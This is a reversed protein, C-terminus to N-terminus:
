MGGGGRVQISVFGATPGGTGMKVLGGGGSQPNLSKNMPATRGSSSSSLNMIFCKYINFLVRCM